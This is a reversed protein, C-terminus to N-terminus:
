FLRGNARDMLLSLQYEWLEAPATSLVSSGKLKNTIKTFDVDILEDLVGKAETWHFDYSIMWDQYKTSGEM